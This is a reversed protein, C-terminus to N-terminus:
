EEYVEFDMRRRKYHIPGPAAHNFTDPTDLDTPADDDVFESENDEDVLHSFDLKKPKIRKENESLERIIRAGTKPNILEMHTSYDIEQLPPNRSRNKISNNNSSTNFPNAMKVPKKSFPNIITITKKEVFPNPLHDRYIETEMDDEADVEEAIQALHENHWREVVADTIIKKSPTLPIQPSHSPSDQDEQENDSDLMLSMNQADQLDFISFLKQLSLYRGSGVTSSKKTFLRMPSLDM